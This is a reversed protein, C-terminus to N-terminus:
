KLFSCKLTNMWSSKPFKRWMKLISLNILEFDKTIFQCSYRMGKGSHKRWHHYTATNFTERKYSKLNKVTPQNQDLQLVLQDLALIPEGTVYWDWLKLQWVAPWTGLICLYVSLCLNNCIIEMILKLSIKASKRDITYGWTSENSKTSEKSRKGLYDTSEQKVSELICLCCQIVSICCSHMGLFRGVPIRRKIAKTLSTNFTPQLFRNGLVVETPLSTTPHVFAEM